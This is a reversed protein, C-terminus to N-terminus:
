GAQILVTESQSLAGPFNVPGDTRCTRSSVEGTIVRSDNIQVFHRFHRNEPMEPMKDIRFLCFFVAFWM